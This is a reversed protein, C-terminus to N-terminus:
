YINNRILEQLVQSEYIIKSLNLLLYFGYVFNLILYLFFVNNGCRNESDSGPDECGSSRLEQRCEDSISIGNVSTEFLEM